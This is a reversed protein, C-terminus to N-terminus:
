RIHVIIGNQIQRNKELEMRVSDLVIQELVKDQSEFLLDVIEINHHLSSWLEELIDENM